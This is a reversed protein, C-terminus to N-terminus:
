LKVCLGRISVDVNSRPIWPQNTVGPTATRNSNRACELSWENSFSWETETERERVSVGSFREWREGEESM